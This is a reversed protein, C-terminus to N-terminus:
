DHRLAEVPDVRAAQRAPQWAAALAALVLVAAAATWAVPDYAVMGYLLSSLARSVGISLALGLILGAALWRMANGLVLMVVGRPTAGLAIRLGIERTRQAVLFGLVGYIGFASLLLGLAAFVALLLANFRPRVSLRNISERLTEIQAPL